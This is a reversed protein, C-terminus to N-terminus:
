CVAISSKSFYIRYDTCNPHGREETQYHMMHRQFCRHPATAVQPVLKNQRTSFSALGTLLRGPSCRILLSRM